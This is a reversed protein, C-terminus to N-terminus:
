TLGMERAATTAQFRSDVSLKAYIHKLHFKVTNESVFVRRSIEKNSLGTVLLRLIEKEHGSLAALPRSGSGMPSEAQPVDTESAEFLRELFERIQVAGDDHRSTVGRYVDTLLRIMEQGEDLFIRVFGGPAALQLAKYLQRRAMNEDGKVHYAIADLVLLKIHRRVRGRHHAALLEQRLRDLVERTRGEHLALRIRGIAEGETDDAFQLWGNPLTNHQPTIRSAISHARDYEGRVLAHRVREWRIARVVRPWMSAYGIAEAEDLIEQSKLPRGRVEHIRAMTVYAMVIFDHMGANAIVDRFRTFYLEAAELENAEYLAQVYGCILAASSVSEDLGIRPDSATSRFMELAEGLEGQLVLRLGALGASYGWSFGAGANDGLARARSLYEHANEFNNAVLALYGKLNAAAALEFARFSHKPMDFVDARGVTELAGILDDQLVAIMSRVVDPDADPAPTSALRDLIGLLPELKERRRLFALAYAAKIVLPPRKVIEDLSLRDYWREVTTLHGDMVLQAAWIDLTEAAFSGSGADVAHHLAEEFMGHERFWHAARRHIELVANPDHAKLQVSLFSSFLPHYKFWELQSDLNRVFLGAHVLHELVEQSGKHEMIEDCLPGSLRVLLSTRLLFDQLLLPQLSLVNDALYQALQELHLSEISALSERVSPRVLSLRYLHLAAPWGETKEAVAQLERPSLALDRTQAFFLEVEEPTFRLDEARLVLAVNNVVLRALGLDPITRSGIFVMVPEPLQALLNRFFTHISKNTLAQFEDFFLATPQGLAVLRNTFWETGRNSFVEEGPETAYANGAARRDFETLLAQMHAILRNVDNDAEDFSLWGTLAGRNELRSKAQQLLTTKGYGAPAHLLVVRITEDGCMLELLSDRSVAGGYVRPSFLKHAAVQSAGEPPYESASSMLM